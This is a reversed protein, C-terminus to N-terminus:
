QAIHDSSRPCTGSPSLHRRLCADTAQSATRSSVRDLSSLHHQFDHVSCACFLETRGLRPLHLTASFCALMGVAEIRYRAHFM